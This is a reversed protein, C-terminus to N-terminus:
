VPATLGQELAVAGVELLMAFHPAPVEARVRVFLQLRELRDENWIPVADEVYARRPM